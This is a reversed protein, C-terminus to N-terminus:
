WDRAAEYTGRCGVASTEWTGSLTKLDESVAGAIAGGHGEAQLTGDQDITGSLASDGAAADRFHSSGIKLNGKVRSDLIRLDLV